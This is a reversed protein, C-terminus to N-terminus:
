NGDVTGRRTSQLEPPGILRPSRPRRDPSLNALAVIYFFDANVEAFFLEPSYLLQEKGCARSGDAASKFRGLAGDTGHICM